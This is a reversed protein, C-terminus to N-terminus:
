YRRRGRYVTRGVRGRSGAGVSTSQRIPSIRSAAGQNTGGRGHRSYNYFSGSGINSNNNNNDGNYNIGFGMSITSSGDNNNDRNNQPSREHAGIENDFGFDETWICQDDMERDFRRRQQERKKDAM